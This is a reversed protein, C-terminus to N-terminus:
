KLIYEQWDKQQQLLIGATSGYVVQSPMITESLRRHKAIGEMFGKDKVMVTLLSQLYPNKLSSTINLWEEWVSKVSVETSPLFCEMDLNEDNCVTISYLIIQAAGNYESVLGTVKVVDGVVCCNSVEEVQEWVRGQVQGTKDSLTLALFFESGDRFPLLKKNKVAYVGQMEVGLKLDGISSSM